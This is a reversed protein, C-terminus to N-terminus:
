PSAGEMERMKKSRSSEDILKKEKVIDAEYILNYMNGLSDICHWLGNKKGYKWKGGVLTEHHKYNYRMCYFVEGKKSINSLDSLSKLIGDEIIKFYYFRAEYLEYGQYSYHCNYVILTDNSIHYDCDYLTEITDEWSEGYADKYLRIFSVKDEKLYMYYDEDISNFFSVCNYQACVSLPLFIIILLIYRM